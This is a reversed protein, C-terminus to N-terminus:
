VASQNKEVDLVKNLRRQFRAEPLFNASLFAALIDKASDVGIIRAGLCVVNMDDHEVGQRSSYTDHCLCARIGIVKNATVCAGVGSGCIIIGRDATGEKVALAVALAFDPYDDDPDLHHAGLDTIKHGLAGLWAKLEGKLEFGAHDAGVALRM